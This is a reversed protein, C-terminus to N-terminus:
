YAASDSKYMLGKPAAQKRITKYIKEDISAEAVGSKKVETKIYANRKEGLEKIEDILASRLKSREQIVHLQQKQPLAQIAAPLKDKDISELDVRGSAVDDVLENKGLRNFKGSKQVNFEARRARTATSSREHLKNTAKVKVNQKEREEKSGYYIRTDDLKKSLTAMKRDFPTSVAVANGAHGVQFYEGQGLSAMRMWQNRTSKNNGSQIANIVIGRDQAMKIIEPYKIENRYDMHPPADGVLFVVKYVGKEQSWAMNNVADLLAKNVSEPGDGGGSAKFDMLKSYMTDLDKSLGVTKTVYQDGRDRYAVLGIKIEPSSQASAMTTAISWIKEKAADILGSMSGTTDLVFVVEIKNQEKIPTSGNIVQQAPNNASANWIGDFPYFSISMVTIAFMSVALLKIKM